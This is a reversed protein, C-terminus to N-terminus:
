NTKTIHLLFDIFPLALTKGRRGALKGEKQATLHYSIYMGENVVAPKYSVPKQMFPVLVGPPYPWSLNFISLVIYLIKIDWVVILLCLVHYLLLSCTDLKAWNIFLLSKWSKNKESDPPWLSRLVSLHRPKEYYEKKTACKIVEWCFSAMSLFKWRCNDNASDETVCTELLSERPVTV